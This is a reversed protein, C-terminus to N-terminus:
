LGGDSRSRKPCPQVRQEVRGAWNMVGEGGISQGDVLGIRDGRNLM